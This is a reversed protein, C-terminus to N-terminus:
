WSALQAVIWIVVVFFSLWVYWPASGESREADKRWSDFVTRILQEQISSPNGFDIVDAGCHGPLHTCSLGSKRFRDYLSEAQSPPVFVVAATKDLILWADYPPSRDLSTAPLYEPM